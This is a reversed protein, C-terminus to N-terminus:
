IRRDYFFCSTKSVTQYFIMRKYISIFSDARMCHKYKKRQIMNFHFIIVIFQNLHNESNCGTFHIVSLQLFPQPFVDYLNFRM